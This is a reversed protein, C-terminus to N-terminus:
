SKGADTEKEDRAPLLQRKAVAGSRAEVDIAEVGPGNSRYIGLQLLKAVNSDTLFTDVVWCITALPLIDTFPLIEEAFELVLVTNSGGFLSRLILAAIPAWVIDSVEGLLPVLESSTGIVDIAVCVLLKFIDPKQVARQSAPVQLGKPKNFIKDSAWEGAGTIQQSALSTIIAFAAVALLQGIVFSLFRNQLGAWFVNSVVVPDVIESGDFYEFASTLLSSSEFPTMGHRLLVVQANKTLARPAFATTAPLSSTWVIAAYSTAILLSKM